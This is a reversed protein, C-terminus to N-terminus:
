DDLVCAWIANKILNFTKVKSFISSNDGDKEKISKNESSFLYHHINTIVNMRARQRLVLKEAVCTTVNKEITQNLWEIMHEFDALAMKSNVQQKVIQRQKLTYTHLLFFYADTFQALVLLPVGLFLFILFSQLQAKAKYRRLLAVKHVLTKLYAFPLMALNVAVFVALVVLSIPLYVILFVMRNIYALVKKNKITCLCPLTLFGVWSFIFPFMTLTGYYKDFTYKPM